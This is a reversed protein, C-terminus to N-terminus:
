DAPRSIVVDDSSGSLLQGCGQRRRPFAARGDKEEAGPAVQQDPITSDPPENDLVPCLLYSRNILAGPLQQRDPDFGPHGQGTGRMTKRLVAPLAQLPRDANGAREPAGDDAVRPGM